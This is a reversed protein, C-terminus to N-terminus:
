VNANVMYNEKPVFGKLREEKLYFLRYLVPILTYSCLLSIGLSLSVAIAQDFFLAGAM